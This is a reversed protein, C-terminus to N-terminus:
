SNVNTLTAGPPPSFDGIRSAIGTQVAEEASLWLDSRSHIAWHDNTLATENKFIAEVRSDDLILSKLHASMREATFGGLSASSKHMMFAATKSAVRDKAGLYAAVGVSAICGVNYITMGVPLVRFFNYLAIGDGVIGGNTQFLLHVHKYGEYSASAFLHMLRNVSFQNVEGAFTAWAEKRDTALSTSLLGMPTNDSMEVNRQRAPPPSNKTKAYGIQVTRRFTLRKGGIM